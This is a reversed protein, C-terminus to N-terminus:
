HPVISFCISSWLYTDCVQLHRLVIRNPRLLSYVNPSKLTCFGVGSDANSRSKRDKPGRDTTIGYYVDKNRWLM